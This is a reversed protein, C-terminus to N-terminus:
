PPPKSPDNAAPQAPPVVTEGTEPLRELRQESKKIEGKASAKVKVPVLRAGAERSAAIRFLTAMLDCLESEFIPGDGPIIEKPVHLIWYNTKNEGHRDIRWQTWNPRTGTYLTIDEFAGARNALNM